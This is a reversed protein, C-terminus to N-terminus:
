RRSRSLVSYPRYSHRQARRHRKTCSAVCRRMMPGVAFSTTWGRRRRVSIARMKIWRSFADGIITESTPRVILPEELEAEPDPKLKGDIMKLRHHTVVTFFYVGGPHGALM